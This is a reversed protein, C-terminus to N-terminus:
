PTEARGVGKDLFSRDLKYFLVLFPTVRWSKGGNRSASHFLRMQTECHLHESQTASMHLAFRSQERVRMLHSVPSHGSRALRRVDGAHNFSMVLPVADAFTAPDLAM